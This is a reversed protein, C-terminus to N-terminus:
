FEEEIEKVYTDMLWRGKIEAVVRPFKLDVREITIINDEPKTKEESSWKKLWEEAVRLAESFDSTKYPSREYPHWVQFVPLIVKRVKRASIPRKRGREDTYFGITEM